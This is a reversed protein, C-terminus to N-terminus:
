RKFYHVDRAWPRAAALAREADADAAYMADAAAHTAADNELTWRALAADADM